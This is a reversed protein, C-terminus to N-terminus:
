ELLNLIQRDEPIKFAAYILTVTRLKKIWENTEDDDLQTDFKMIFDLNKHKGILFGNDCRNSILMIRQDDDQHVFCTFANDDDTKISENDQAFKLGLVDNIEWSLRYDNEHSSIGILTFMEEDATDMYKVIQRKAAM